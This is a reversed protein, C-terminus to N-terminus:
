RGDVAGKILRALYPRQRELGARLSMDFLKNSTRVVCGAAIAPQLGVTVLTHPDINKRLWLLIDEFPKSSPESAFSIHMKPAAEYIKTLKQNLGARHSEDLLNLENDHSLQDLQRSLKPLQMSTGAQRNKVSVFFDDLNNLERLLRAVDIPSIVTNPLRLHEM